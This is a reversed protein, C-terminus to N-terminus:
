VDDVHITWDFVGIGDGEVVVSRPTDFTFVVVVSDFDQRSGDLRKSTFVVFRHTRRSDDFTVQMVEHSVVILSVMIIRITSVVVFDPDFGVMVCLLGCMMMRVLVSFLSEHVLVGDLDWRPVALKRTILRIGSYSCCNNEIQSKSMM